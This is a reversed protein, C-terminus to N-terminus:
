FEYSVGAYGSRRPAPEISGNFFVRSYYKEDALNSIGAILKLRKTIYYDGALNLVKYSPIKAPITGTATNADSWFQESVYVATLSIDFCKDRSLTIGGKWLVEPAFAPTKGVQGPIRILTKPTPGTAAEPPMPAPTLGGAAFFVRSQCRGSSEVPDIGM